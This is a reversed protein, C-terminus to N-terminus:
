QSDSLTEATEKLLIDQLVQFPLTGILRLSLEITSCLRAALFGWCRSECHPDWGQLLQSGWATQHALVCGPLGPVCSLRRTYLYWVSVPDLPGDPEESLPGLQSASEAGTAWLGTTNGGQDQSWPGPLLLYAYLAVCVTTYQPCSYM